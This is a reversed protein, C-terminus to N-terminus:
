THSHATSSEARLRDMAREVRDHYHMFHIDSSGLLPQWADGEVQWFTENLILARESTWEHTPPAEERTRDRLKLVRLVLECFELREADSSLRAFYGRRKLAPYRTNGQTFYSVQTGDSYTITTVEEHHAM